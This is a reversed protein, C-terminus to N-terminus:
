AIKHKVDSRFISPSVGVRKKFFNYFHAADDFGLNNGIESISLNTFKLMSQAETAIKVGILQTTTRGTMASIARNLHNVHVCLHGAFDKATKLPSSNGTACDSFQRNLVEFFITTLRSNANSYEYIKEFPELKLAFHILESIYTRSLDLKFQYDSLKENLLKKFIKSVLEDQENNLSYCPKGDLIFMPLQKIDNKFGESYFSEKFISFYGTEDSLPEWTYPVYPSFFMLTSGTIEISKHAYHCRNTGRILAIKYFDRRCYKAPRKSTFGNDELTFVNYNSNECNSIDSSEISRAHYFEKISEFAKM